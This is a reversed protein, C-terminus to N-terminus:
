KRIAYAGFAQTADLFAALEEFSFVELCRWLIARSVSVACLIGGIPAATRQDKALPLMHKIM